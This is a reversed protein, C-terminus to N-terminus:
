IEKIEMSSQEFWPLPVQTGPPLGAGQQVNPGDVASPLTSPQFNANKKKAPTSKNNNMNTANNNVNNRGNGGDNTHNKDSNKNNNKNCDKKGCCKTANAGDGDAKKAAAKAIKNRKKDANFSVKEEATMAHTYKTQAPIGAAVDRQQVVVLLAATRTAAAERDAVFARRYRRLEQVAADLATATSEWKGSVSKACQLSLLPGWFEALDQAAAMEELELKQQECAGPACSGQCGALEKLNAAHGVSGLFKNVIIGQAIIFETMIKTGASSPYHLVSNRGIVRNMKSHNGCGAVGCFYKDLWVVGTRADTTSYQAQHRCFKKSRGYVQTVLRTAASIGSVPPLTTPAQVSLDRPLVQGALRNGNGVGNNFVPPYRCINRLCTPPENSSASLSGASYYKDLWVGGTGSETTSYQAQHRCFKKSRGYVQTVLRTAASIGSVPQPNMPAQLVEELPWLSPNGPPYRCINRLCTTSDNSSASLSGATTSTWGFSEREEELPWLSPNGPPYRCINRLCTPPENSSASLSGASYYKDLWVIGTGSETTSYQAQHRCFKKSRGYVQTVLRTAASIGSVPQPNMPAQVSPDRPLVQGALRNGNGVGNNFVAGPTLRTAASIGSVPQPNMPAQVSPDRPLVQGALRNGNLVEELPWLSPNGPPYRCINRLCTPPENSSASISGASYYKDLWVGGTGSETTSYQAQHRCFKKSRGYVQTVLRTAASIGSVPQPNMPAQVSPDRPRVQGALRNGNRFGNNFVAGPTLRAAASIGSVPQPNMPAQVSPDRPLVQGALRNGNLVEELPWLSPNGPPYRCINRLCTPPENSSASLSGASYYKDLWVGGTGSETTSYQAQHRCFKKSRGYVQTVLRTAASIGSVPQPNMPAQVSPDRPLVQGALRNGNGVGNNFVPPYRCINRLCTTSDNSSASLSGATTSTWGFSERELRTAASIGSVPQPNMPAQVSPDRPLVQGALRNGNLVEELPWLSPNGPPYRCINRLCTPPENSSASLSGASYYKDLWVGGTGSETTSYQAQHRCFKKSRGYVQTVLRTAASIGSVPQPNMPAQVSPDRPLVQGALRNGNLVEELPWLSPNGPPYRCINRLCTPPENSSASLSGAITSSVNM